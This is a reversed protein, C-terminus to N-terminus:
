ILTCFKETERREVEKGIAAGQFGAAMVEEGSVTLKFRCFPHVLASNVRNNYEAFTTILEPLVRLSEMTKKLRYATEKTLSQLSVLFAIQSTEEASYKLQNLVKLLVKPDNERLLWAILVIPNKYGVTHTYVKLGPFIQSWLNLRTITELLSTVSRASAVCKLFEDRIREGSVGALSNNNVIACYTEWELEYGLRSAFRVARLVRLRDEAFREEPNGVTRIVRNKIDELGGVYDVIMRSGIDYFLANITLDRRLVDKDISTFEVADPRRGSGIDSRFTAIEYEEEGDMVVKIVGFSKGIDLIKQVGPASQVIAIVEDPTANTALDYDKPKMGMWADRVAGGVVYFEKKARGFQIALALVNMPLEIYFDQEVPIM